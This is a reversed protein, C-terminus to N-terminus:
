KLKMIMFLLIKHLLYSYLFCSPYKIDLYNHLLYSYMSILGIDIYVNLSKTINKYYNNNNNNKNNDDFLNIKILSNKNNNFKAPAYLPPIIFASCMNIYFILKSLSLPM